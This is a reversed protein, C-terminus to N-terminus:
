FEVSLRLGGVVATETAASGGPNAIVQLDTLLSIAPTLQFKYYTEFAHEDRAFSTGPANSLDTWAYMFGVADDERGAFTGQISMGVVVAGAISSIAEESLSGQLFEFLGKEPDNPAQANQILQQEALGYFGAVGRNSQGSFETFRATNTWGGLAIRGHGLPEFDTWTVGAEGIAFYENGESLPDFGRAGTNIGAALSGDFIGGGLYLWPTPYVFVLAGLAPNPYTPLLYVGQPMFPAANLFDAASNVFAFEANAEIKGIKFRLQDDFLKQEYWLESVQDLSQSSSLVDVLNFAGANVSADTNGRTSMFDLYVTAGSLSFLKELDASLNLNLLSHTAARNSVGGSWVSQWDFTYSGAFTLGADELQTRYGAWDGSLRSWEWIPKGGFWDRLEDKTAPPVPAGPAESKPLPKPEPRRPGQPRGPLDPDTLLMEPAVNAFRDDDSQALASGSIAWLSLTALSLANKHIM